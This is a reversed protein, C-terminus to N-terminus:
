GSRPDFTPPEFILRFPHSRRAARETYAILGDKRLRLVGRTRRVPEGTSRWEARCAFRRATRHRCSVVGDSEGSVGVLSIANELRRVVRRALVRGPLATLVHTAAVGLESTATVRLAHVETSAAVRLPITTVGATLSLTTSRIVRGHRLVQLQATAPRTAVVDLHGGLLLRRDRPPLAIAFRDAQAIPTVAALRLGFEPLGTLVFPSGNRVAIRAIGTLRASAVSRGDTNVARLTLRRPIATESAASRRTSAATPIWECCGAHRESGSGATTM